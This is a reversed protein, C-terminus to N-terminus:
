SVTGWAQVIRPGGLVTHPDRAFRYLAETTEMFTDRDALGDQLVPGAIDQLTVCILLKIGGEMAAPHWLRMRVDDYGTTRLLGPLRPGINPDGGRTRVTKTYWEVSRDLAENPPEAFHGRFDIDELIIVGGPRIHRAIARLVGEPDRLHTLLFRIYVVDFPHSPEWETVDHMAYVINALGARETEERAMELKKADFDIGVVNGEPGVMRGLTRTVDGGGCGLDLCSAGSQIGVRQLLAETEPGMVESLLCLRERGEIGGRIVYDEAEM